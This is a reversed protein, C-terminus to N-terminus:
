RRKVALGIGVGLALAIGLSLEPNDVIWATASRGLDAVNKPVLKRASELHSGVGAAATQDNSTSETM